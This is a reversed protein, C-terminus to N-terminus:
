RGLKKAISALGLIEYIQNGLQNGNHLSWMRGALLKEEDHTVNEEIEYLSQRQLMQKMM